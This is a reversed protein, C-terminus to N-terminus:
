LIKMTKMHWRVAEFFGSPNLTSGQALDPKGGGQGGTVTLAARLLHGAHLEPVRSAVGCRGDPALGVVLDGDHDATLAPQLLAADTVEMFRVRLQGLGEAPTAQVLVQALRSRAAELERKLALREGDLAEVKETLREVPVSFTQGLARAVRYVGSLYEGAEEGAMFTVRTLGGKIRETRLVVVPACMAARPVHTGGCASVDFSHGMRDRFIVLRVQGTIKTERRLPYNALETEAVVPTELTLEDRGLVERLLVEAARVDAEQPDGKLDLHCEPSNMSVAVVQFAPNVRLFAQALLHEGSHRQMHRWRRAADIEGSIATGVPPLDGQVVHWIEGSGKDKRTDTVQAEHGNWRLRGTDGPQGGGEPYFASADLKVEGDRVASVTAQFALPTGSEHFVNEHYLARTM